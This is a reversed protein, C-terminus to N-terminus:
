DYFDGKFTNATMIDWYVRGVKLRVRLQNWKIVSVGFGVRKDGGKRDDKKNVM